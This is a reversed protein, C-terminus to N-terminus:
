GFSGVGIPDSADIDIMGGVAAGDGEVREPVPPTNTHPPRGMM